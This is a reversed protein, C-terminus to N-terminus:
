TTTTRTPAPRSSCPRRSTTSARASRSRSATPSRARRPTIQPRAARAHRRRQVPVAAVLDRRHRDQRGLRPRYPGNIDDGASMVRGDPLLLATSHYTRAEAQANGFTFTETAPDYIEVRKEADRYQWRYLEKDADEGIGGGVIAIRGDPLLVSNAFARPRTCTPAPQGAPRPDPRTSASRRRSPPSSRRRRGPRPRRPRRRRVADGRDLRRRRAPSCCAREGVRPSTPCTPRTTGTPTTAHGPASPHFGLQRHDRPGAILAHGSPMWWMHPYQGPLPPRAPRRAADIRFNKLRQLTGDPSFIEVDANASLRPRRRDPTPRRRAPRRHDATRGDALELQTPYWRGQRM